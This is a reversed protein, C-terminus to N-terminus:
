FYRAIFSSLGKLERRLKGGGNNATEANNGSRTSRLRRTSNTEPSIFDGTARRRLEHSEPTRHAMGDAFYGSWDVLLVLFFKGAGPITMLFFPPSSISERPKTMHCGSGRSPRLRNFRKRTARSISHSIPNKGM